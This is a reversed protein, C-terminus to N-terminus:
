ISPHIFPKTLDTLFSQWDSEQKRRVELRQLQETTPSHVHVVFLISPLSKTSLLQATNVGSLVFESIDVSNDPTVQNQILMWHFFFSVFLLFVELPPSLPITETTGDADLQLRLDGTNPWSSSRSNLKACLEHDSLSEPTDHSPFCQLTICATAALDRCM